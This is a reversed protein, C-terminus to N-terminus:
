KMQLRIVQEDQSNLNNLFLGAAGFIASNDLESIEIQLKKITNIYGFDQIASLMAGMFLKSAKALSGGIIIIEPDYAYVLSKIVQGLHYGYENFYECYIKDGSIAHNFASEADIGKEMFFFKGSCYYEYNHKLYQIEGFEGAGCNNGEYLKGNFVLGCGLGTGLTLGIISNFSEGKGYYKEGLIFCNADNNIYVPVKYRNELIEKLPVNNWSPINVVDYVIGKEVDVIGPVGVGIGKTKSNFCENLVSFLTELIVNESQDSPNRKKSIKAIENDTVRGARINTGGLDVGIINYTDEM